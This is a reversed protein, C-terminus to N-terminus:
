GPRAPLGMQVLLRQYRPERALEAFFPDNLNIMRPARAALAQELADLAANTEGLGVWVLALDIASTGRHPAISL